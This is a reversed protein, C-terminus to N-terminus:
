IHVATYVDRIEAYRYIHSGVVTFNDESYWLLVTNCLTHMYTYFRLIQWRMM